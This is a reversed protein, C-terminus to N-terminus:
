SSQQNQCWNPSLWSTCSQLLNCAERAKSITSIGKALQSSAIQPYHFKLYKHLLCLYQRQLGEIKSPDKLHKLINDTSYLSVLQLLHLLVYDINTNQYKLGQAENMKLEQSNDIQDADINPWKAVDYVTKKLSGIMTHQDDSVTQSPYLQEFSLSNPTSKMVINSKLSRMALITVCNRYNEKSDLQNMELNLEERHTATHPLYTSLYLTREYVDEILEKLPSPVIGNGVSLVSSMFYTTSMNNGFLLGVTEPDISKHDDCSDWLFKQFITEWFRGFKRKNQIDIMDAKPNDKFSFKLLTDWSSPDEMLFRATEILLYESIFQKTRFSILKVEEQDFSITSLAGKNLTIYEMSKHNVIKTKRNERKMKREQRQKQTLVLSTRLGALLCKQFRCYRCSGWSKSDIECEYGIKNFSPCEFRKYADNEVSRRFFARCSACAKGGYHKHRGANGSNCILCLCDDLQCSDSKTTNELKVTKDSQKPIPFDQNSYNCEAEEIKVPPQNYTGYVDDNGTEVFDIDPLEEILANFLQIDHGSYESFYNEHPMQLVNHSSIDIDGDM